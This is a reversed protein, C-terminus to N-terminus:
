FLDPFKDYLVSAIEAKSISRPGVANNRINGWDYTDLHEFIENRIALDEVKLFYNSQESRSSTEFGVKGANGGIRQLYFDPNNSKKVFKIIESHRISNLKRRQSTKAWIQFVCPVDYPTGNLEFSNKNLITEQTLEFDLSLKNKISDKRFSRPLVFAICDAFTAAHNFFKIALNNQVGFPPNGIVLIKGKDSGVTFDFFDQKIITSDEPQIDLAVCGPINKSFAGSGASPEIIYDFSKLDIQALCYEVTKQSTYFKDNNQKRGNSKTTGTRKPM